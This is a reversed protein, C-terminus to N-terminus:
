NLIVSNIVSYLDDTLIAFFVAFLRHLNPFFVYAILADFKKWGSLKQLNSEDNILWSSQHTSIVVNNTNRTLIFKSGNGMSYLLTSPTITFNEGNKCINYRFDVKVADYEDAFIKFLMSGNCTLISFILVKGCSSIKKGCYSNGKHCLRHDEQWLARFFTILQSSYLIPDYFHYGM